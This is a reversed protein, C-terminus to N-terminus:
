TSPDRNRTSTVGMVVGIGVLVIAGAVIWHTPMHALHAGYILGGIMVVFGVIYLTFSMVNGRVM